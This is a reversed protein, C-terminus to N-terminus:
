TLRDAQQFSIVHGCQRVVVARVPARGGDPAAVEPVRLVAGFLDRVDLVLFQLAALLVFLVNPLPIGGDKHALRQRRAPATVITLFVSM